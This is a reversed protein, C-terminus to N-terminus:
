PEGHLVIKDRDVEQIFFSRIERRNALREPTLVITSFLFPNAGEDMATEVMVDNVLRDAERGGEAVILLDVDSYEGPEEGRARSGYLWVSRLREGLRETVAELFLDVVRREHETLSAEAIPPM